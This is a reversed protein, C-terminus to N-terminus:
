SEPLRKWLDAMTRSELILRVPLTMGWENRVGRALKVALVSHGGRDFFNEDPGISPVDLVSAALECLGDLDRAHGDLDRHDANHESPGSEGVSRSTRASREELARRDVKGNSMTPLADLVVIDAPLMHAPLRRALRHHLDNAEPESGGSAAVYATMRATDLAGTVVVASLAVGPCSDLAAEIEGLEVRFGRLKVQHDSRGAFYLEGDGSRYGRDGSRYMRTGPEGFPDAVFREATLGPRNLYGLAEGSGVLYLEGEEDTTCPRLQEDLVRVENGPWPRGISVPSDPEVPGAMTVGVTMETPGYGNYMRRNPAWARVLSPTCVDGTSLLVGGELVGASETLSLAVPPLVAHSIERERLTRHLEEGPLIDREDTVVLTAGSLLALTMDWFGADFNFSAWQLVRDGPGAGIWTRQTAVLDSVGAHPVVVGKPVGTSGSTYIVYMPHDATLPRLLERRPVPDAAQASLLDGVEPDDLDVVAVGALVDHSGSHLVHDLSADGVVHEVWERPYSPDLPVYAAGATAVALAAVPLWVGRAISFGVLDGPGIGREILLRSLRNVRAALEEYTLSEGSAEVAPEGPHAAVIREFHESLTPQGTDRGGVSRVDTWVREVYARADDPEAPGHEVSWGTPVTEDVPWLSRQGRENRLVAYNKGEREFPNRSM